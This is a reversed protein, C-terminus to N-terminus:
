VTWYRRDIQFGYKQQIWSPIRPDLALGRARDRRSAAKDGRIEALLGQTYLAAANGPDLALVARFDAAAPANKGLALKLFARDLLTATSDPALDVAKDCDAPTQPRWRGRAGAACLWAWAHADQPNAEATAAIDAPAAQFDLQAARYGTLIRGRGVSTADCAVKVEFDSSNAQRGVRSSLVRTEVLKGAADYFGGTEGAITQTSCDFTERRVLFAFRREIATPKDGVILVTAEVVGDGRRISDLVLYEAENLTQGVFQVRGGPLPATVTAAEPGGGCGALLGAVVIGAAGLRWYSAQM